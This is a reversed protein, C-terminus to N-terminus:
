RRDGETAAPEPAELAPVGPITAKGDFSLARELLEFASLLARVNAGDTSQM